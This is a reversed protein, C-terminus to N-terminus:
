VDAEVTTRMIFRCQNPPSGGDEIIDRLRMELVDALNEAAEEPTAGQAYCAEVCPVSAVYHGGEDQEIIAVYSYKM